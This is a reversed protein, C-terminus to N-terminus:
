TNLDNLSFFFHSDFWCEFEVYSQVPCFLVSLLVIMPQTIMDEDEDSAVVTDNRLCYTEADEVSRVRLLEEIAERHRGLRGRLMAIEEVLSSNLKYTKIQKLLIEASLKVDRNMVMERLKQSSHKRIKSLVDDSKLISLGLLYQSALRTCLDQKEAEKVSHSLVFELYRQLLMPPAAVNKNDKRSRRLQEFVVADAQELRECVANLSLSTKVRQVTFISLSKLPDRLLVWESFKLILRAATNEGRSVEFDKCLHEITERVGDRTVSSKSEEMMSDAVIERITGKGLQQWIELAAEKHDRNWYLLALAHYRAHRRLEEDAVRLDIFNPCSTVLNKLAKLDALRILIRLLATDLTEISFQTSGVDEATTNERRKRHDLLIQAMCEYASRVVKEVVKRDPLRKGASTRSTLRKTVLDTISRHGSEALTRMINSASSMTSLVNRFSQRPLIEPFLMLIEEPRAQSQIWHKSVSEFMMANLLAEAAQRHFRMLASPYEKASTTDQLLQLADEIQPPSKRLLLFIQKEFPTPMLRYIRDGNSVLVVSDCNGPVGGDALLDCSSVDLTQVLEPLQGASKDFRYVEVRNKFLSLVYRNHIYIYIHTYVSTFMHLLRDYVYPNCYGVRTPMARWLLPNRAVPAGNFYVFVGMNNKGVILLQDGPVVKLDPPRELDLIGPLPITEDSKLDYFAYEKKFGLCLMDNCWRMEVPTHPLNVDRLYQFRGSSYEYMTVRRKEAVCIRCSKRTGASKRHIAMNTVNRHKELGPDSIMKLTNLSLLSVRGDECLVLISKLNNLVKIMKVPYGKSSVKVRTQEKSRSTTGDGDECRLAYVEGKSTGVYIWLVGDSENYTLTNIIRDRSDRSRGPSQATHVLTKTFISQTNM